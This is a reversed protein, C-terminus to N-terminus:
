NIILKAVRTQNLARIEVLYIGGAPKTELNDKGSWTVENYGGPLSGDFVAAVAQGMMNLVRVQVTAEETGPLSFGIKTQGNTPNPSLSHVLLSSVATKGDIFEKNGYFARFTKSKKGNLSYSNEKKMDVARQEEVDWLVLWAENNGFYSNDWELNTNGILNTEVTFDWEHNQQTPVIDKAYASNIFRKNHNMEVYEFFRPVTFEDYIDERLNANENMGVGGMGLIKGGNKLNIIVEWDSQDISNKRQATQTGSERGAAPNKTVPFKLDTASLVNVFGGEFKDIKTDGTLNYAGDYTVIKTTAPLGSATLVDSWLVNFTYPNGILNWGSVLPVSFSQTTPVTAGPGTDLSASTKAILWYGKGPEITSSANMEVNSTGSYNFIRWVDKKLAGLDDELVAAVTKPDLVLPISIIRYNTQETGFSNYPIIMGTGSYTLTAKGTVNASLGQSNTATIKYEAGLEGNSAVPLTFEWKGATLTMNEPTSFAGGASISRHEIKVSGAPLSSENEVVSAVVKLQTTPSGITAATENTIVPPTGLLLQSNSLPSATLYNITPGSGNFSFVQYHYISESTLGSDNFTAAPGFYAVVADGLVNGAVYATGDAPIGTPASDKKRIAIYGSPPGSAATFTGTLSTLAVNSFVLSTPQATPEAAITSATGTLPITTLYNWTGTSGNASFIAYSYSSGATLGTQNFTTTQFDGLFAVTSTGIPAGLNYEVGDVPLDTPATAGAKRLAIYGNPSGAAATFSVTFSTTTLATVVFATPQATPEVVPTTSNGTLPTTTLYNTTGGSGNFSYVAYFYTIGASLAFNDTFTTGTGIFVATSTGSVLNGATYTTGDVPAAITATTNRVVIYGGTPAPSAATFSGSISTPTNGSFVLGAPQATPEAVLTSITGTLPTTPLYNLTTAAGNYSYIAYSYATAATLATQNFTTAAGVYAVTSTGLAAGATYAIGDVPLETPAISGAKRLAIYGTPAGSNPNLSESRENSYGLSLVERFGTELHLKKSLKYSIGVM